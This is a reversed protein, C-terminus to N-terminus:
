DNGGRERKFLKGWLSKKANEKNIKEIRKKAEEARKKADERKRKQEDAKKRKEEERKQKEELEKLKKEYKEAEKYIKREEKKAKEEAEKRAKREKEEKKRAKKRAEQEAKKRKREAKAEKRAAEEKKKAAARKEEKEKRKELVKGLDDAKEFFAESKNFYETSDDFVGLLKDSADRGNVYLNCVSSGIGAIVYSPLWGLGCYSRLGDYMLLGTFGPASSVAVSLSDFLFWYSSVFYSLVGASSHRVAGALGLGRELAGGVVSKVASIAKSNKKGAKKLLGSTDEVNGFEGDVLTKDDDDDCKGKIAVGVGELAKRFHDNGSKLGISLDSWLGHAKNSVKDYGNVYANAVTVVAGSVLSSIIPRDFFVRLIGRGAVSVAGPLLAPVCTPVYKIFSWAAAGAGAVWYYGGNFLNRWRDIRTSFNSKVVKEKKGIVQETYYEQLNARYEAERAEADMTRDRYEAEKETWPGYQKGSEFGAKYLYAALNAAGDKAFREFRGDMAGADGVFLGSVACITLVKKM